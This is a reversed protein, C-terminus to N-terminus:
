REHKGNEKRKRFTFFATIGAGVLSAGALVAWLTTNTSDGTKPVDPTEPILKNHFKAVVTKEAHVTVTM